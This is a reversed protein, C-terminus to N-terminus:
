KQANAVSLMVASERMEETQRRGAETVIAFGSLLESLPESAGVAVIKMRDLRLYKRVATLIDEKSVAFVKERLQQYFDRPLGDYELQAARSVISSSSASDFIWSNAFSQKADALEADSVLETRMREINTMLEALVEKTSRLKTEAWMLWMGQDYRGTSLESGVSYALGRKTRVENFLRGISSDGGLIGNALALPVYDPDTEKVSLHGARLHTQSTDKHILHVVAREGEAQPLDAIARDPVRGAEWDGFAQRLMAMMEDKIFDGSIGLIM